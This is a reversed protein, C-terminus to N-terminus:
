GLKAIKQNPVQAKVATCDVGETSCQPNAAHDIAMPEPKLEAYSTSCPTDGENITNVGGGPFNVIAKDAMVNHQVVIKQDGGRRYRNLTEVTENHCTKTQTPYGKLRIIAQFRANGNQDKRENITGM